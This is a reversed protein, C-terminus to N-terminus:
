AVEMLADCLETLMEQCAEMDEYVDRMDYPAGSKGHGSQDLWLHAEESCDFDDSRSRLESKLEDVTRASISVNFDQGAPSYKRFNFDSGDDTFSWGLAEAIRIIKKKEKAKM